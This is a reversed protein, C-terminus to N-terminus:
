PPAQSTRSLTINTAVSQKKRFLLHPKFMIDRLPKNFAVPVVGYSIHALEWNLCCTVFIQMRTSAFKAVVIFSLIALLLIISQSCGQAFFLINKKLRLKEHNTKQGNTHRLMKTKKWICCFTITDIFFIVGCVCAAHGSIMYIVLVYGCITPRFLWMFSSSDFWLACDYPSFALAHLVSIIWFFGIFYILTRGTFFDNYRVPFAIAVLRNIAIQLQSYISGYWFVLYIQAVRSGVFTNTISADLYILLEGSNSVLHLISILGFANHFVPTRLLAMIVITNIILGIIALVGSLAGAIIHEGEVDTTTNGSM